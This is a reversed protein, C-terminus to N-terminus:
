TAGDKRQRELAMRIEEKPMTISSGCVCNRMELREEPEDKWAPVVLTGVKLQSLWREVTYEEGCACRKVIMAEEVRRPLHGGEHDVRRAGARAAALEATELYEPDAPDPNDLLVSALKRQRRLNEDPDM